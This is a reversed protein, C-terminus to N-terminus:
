CGALEPIAALDRPRGAARKARILGDLSLVLCDRRFINMTTSLSRVADYDGLGTVEGLLDLGGLDTMLTFNLGREITETDFLFPLGSPAGRSRPQYPQLASALRRMNERSRRYCIDFDKTTSASGHATMAVGGIVAFEVEADTLAEVAKQLNM